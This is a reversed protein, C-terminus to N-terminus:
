SFQWKSIIPNYRGTSAENGIKYKKDLLELLTGKRTIPWIYKSRTERYTCRQRKRWCTAVMLEVSYETGNLWDSTNSEFKCFRPSFYLSCNTFVPSPKMHVNKLIVGSIGSEAKSDSHKGWFTVDLFYLFFVFFSFNFLNAKLFDWNM